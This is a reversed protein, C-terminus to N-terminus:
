LKTFHEREALWNIERDQKYLNSANKSASADRPDAIVRRGDSRGDGRVYTVSGGSGALRM